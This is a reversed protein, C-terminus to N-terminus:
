SAGLGCGSCGSERQLVDVGLGPRHSAKEPGRAPDPSQGGPRGETGPEARLRVGREQGLDWGLGCCAGPGPAAEVVPQVPELLGLLLHTLPSPLGIDPAAPIGPTAASGDGEERLLGLVAEFGGHYGVEGGGEGPVQFTNGTSVIHRVRLGAQM